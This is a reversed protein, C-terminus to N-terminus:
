LGANAAVWIGNANDLIANAKYPNTNDRYIVDREVERRPPHTLCITNELKLVGEAVAIM